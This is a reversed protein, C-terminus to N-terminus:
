SVMSYCIIHKRGLYSGLVFGETDLAIEYVCLLAATSVRGDLPVCVSALAQTASETCLASVPAYPTLM